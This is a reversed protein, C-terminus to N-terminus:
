IRVIARLATIIKIVGLGVVIRGITQSKALAMTANTDWKVFLYLEMIREGV